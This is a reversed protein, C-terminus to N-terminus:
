LVNSMQKVHYLGRFAFVRFAERLQVDVGASLCSSRDDCGGMHTRTGKWEALNM